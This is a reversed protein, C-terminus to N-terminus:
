TSFFDDKHNEDNKKWSFWWIEDAIHFYNLHFTWWKFVKAIGSTIYTESFGRLDNSADLAWLLWTGSARCSIARVWADCAVRFHAPCFYIDRPHLLPWLQLRTNCMCASWSTTWDRALDEVFIPVFKWCSRLRSLETQSKVWGRGEGKRKEWEAGITNPKLKRAFKALM